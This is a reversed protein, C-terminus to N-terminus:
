VSSLGATWEVGATAASGFVAVDTTAVIAVSGTTSDTQHGTVIRKGGVTPNATSVTVTPTRPYAHPFTFAQTFVSAATTVSVNLSGRQIPLNYGAVTPSGVEVAYACGSTPLGSVDPMSVTGFQGTAGFQRLRLVQTLSAAATFTIGGPFHLNIRSSTGNLAFLIPFTTAAPCKMILGTFVFDCDGTVSATFNQFSIVGNGSPNPDILSSLTLGVFNFTGSVVEGMYMAIGSNTGGEGSGGYWSNNKGAVVFGNQANVGHFRINETNGHLDVSNIGGDLARYTAYIDIDRCSVSGLGPSGGLSISHRTGYYVGNVSGGQSNGIALGYNNGSPTSAQKPRCDIDLDVCRRVDIGAYVGGSSEINHIIPNDILDVVLGANATFPQKIKFDKLTTSPGVLKHLQVSASNYADYTRGYITVTSGSITAARCWEGARYDPRWTSWSSDTPNWILIVDGFAISPDSVFPLANARLAVNSALNPLAVLQGTLSM